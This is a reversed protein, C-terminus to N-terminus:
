AWNVYYCAHLSHFLTCLPSVHCEEYNPCVKSHPTAALVTDPRLNEVLELITGTKKIYARWRGQSEVSVKNKGSSVYSLPVCGGFVCNARFRSADVIM